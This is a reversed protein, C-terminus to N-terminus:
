PLGNACVTEFQAGNRISFRTAALLKRHANQTRWLSPWLPNPRQNFQQVRCSCLKGFSVNSSPQHGIRVFNWPNDRLGNVSCSTQFQYSPILCQHGVSVNLTSLSKRVG